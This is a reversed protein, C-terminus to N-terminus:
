EVLFEEMQAIGTNSRQCGDRVAFIIFTLATGCDEKGSKMMKICNRNYKVFLFERRQSFIESDKVKTSIKLIEEFRIYYILKKGCRNSNVICLIYFVKIFWKLSVWDGFFFFIWCGSLEGSPFSSLFFLSFLFYNTMSSNFRNLGGVPIKIFSNSFEARETNFSLHNSLPLLPSLSLLFWDNRANM